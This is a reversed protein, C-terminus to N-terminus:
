AEYLQRLYHNLKKDWESRVDDMAVCLAKDNIAEDRTRAFSALFLHFAIIEEGGKEAIKTYIYKYFRHDTNLIIQCTGLGFDFQMFPAEGLPKHVFNIKNLLFNRVDESSPELKQEVLVNEALTEKEKESKNQGEITSQTVKTNGAEAENIAKASDDQVKKSTRSGKREADLRDKMKMITPYIIQNLAFWIPMEDEEYDSKNLEMLEIQQKNNAVGFVEDLEPNFLIECGWFRHQPASIAEYFDFRGFDIERGARVISIGENKSCHEGMPTKGPDKSLVKFDHFKSKIISFKIKVQSKKRKGTSTETYAVELPVIGDKVVDNTFPEFFPEGSKSTTGPSKADGLVLNKKMLYLPDNPLVKITQNPNTIDILFINAKGDEIWHRFKRGLYFELRRFLPETTKPHLRDCRKWLVLTGQKTFDLKDKALTVKLFSQYDSPIGLKEPSKFSKQEGSRLQDVNLYNHYAPGNQWSFVHVEPCVYLSAQPLGVGFRGMGARDRRTGEGITLCDHLTDMDMGHGDDLIAVEEIIKWGRVVSKVLVLVNKAKAELSNDVIESIAAEINRYGTNRLADTYHQVNIIPKETVKANPKEVASPM